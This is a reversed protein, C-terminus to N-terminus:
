AGCALNGSGIRGRSLDDLWISVGDESLASLRHNMSVVGYRGTPRVVQAPAVLRSRIYM